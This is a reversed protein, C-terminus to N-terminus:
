KKDIHSILTEISQKHDTGNKLNKEYLEKEKKWRSLQQEIHSCLTSSDELLFGCDNTENLAVTEIKSCTKM